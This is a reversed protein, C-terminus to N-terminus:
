WLKTDFGNEKLHYHLNRWPHYIFIWHYCSDGDLKDRPYAEFPAYTDELVACMWM